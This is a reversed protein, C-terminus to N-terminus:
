EHAHMQEITCAHINECIYIYACHVINYVPKRRLNTNTNIMERKQTHLVNSISSLVHTLLSIFVYIHKKKTNSSKCHDNNHEQHIHLSIPFSFYLTYTFALHSILKHTYIHTHTHTYKENHDIYILLAVVTTYIQVQM